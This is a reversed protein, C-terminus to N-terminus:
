KKQSPASAPSSGRRRPRKPPKDGTKNQRSGQLPSKYRFPKSADHDLANLIDPHKNEIFGVVLTMACTILTLDHIMKEVDEASVQFTRLRDESQARSWNSITPAEAGIDIPGFHAIDNRIKNIINLQASARDWHWFLREVTRKYKLDELRKPIKFRVEMASRIKDVGHHIRLDPMLVAMMASSVGAVAGLMAALSLEVPPMFTFLTGVAEFYRRRREINAKGEETNPDFSLLDFEPMKPLAM